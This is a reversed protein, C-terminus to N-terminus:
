TPRGCRPSRGWCSAGSRSGCCPGAAAHLAGPFLPWLLRLFGYVGMKSMVGTLFMSVGTPAEAYAAPLWTHFPISRCRSPLDSSFGSFSRRRGSAASRPWGPRSRAARRRARALEVFDLTGTAAFIAAFGLLLFASGGMTYIVFQYAAPAAGPGGWLKILFYAPVLSLEWFVFWHFFDLALFVGLAAGAPPSLAAGFFRPRRVGRWSALLSAPALLGDAARAAPQARRPGPPLPRQPRSGAHARRVPLRDLRPRVVACRSWVRPRPDVPQLALTVVRSAAARRAASPPSCCRVRAVPVLIICSLLPIASMPPGGAARAARARWSPSRWRACIATRRAPRPGPIPAGPAASETAPRTSAPTSAAGTSKAIWRDRSSARPAGAAEVAGGWVRRDLFDALGRWVSNLRGFTAAYLADFRM